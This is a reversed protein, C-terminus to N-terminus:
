IRNQIVAMLKSMALVWLLRHALESGAQIDTGWNGPDMYGVSVLFAPGAFALVRRWGTRPIPVSAHIDELSKSGALTLHSHAAMLEKRGPMSRDAETRRSGLNEM